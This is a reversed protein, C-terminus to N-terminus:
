CVCVGAGRARSARVVCQDSTFVPSGTSRRRCFFYFLCVYLLLVITADDAGVLVVLVRVVLRTDVPTNNNITTATSPTANKHKTGPTLPSHGLHPRGLSPHHTRLPRSDERTASRPM